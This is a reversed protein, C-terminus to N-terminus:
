MPQFQNKKNEEWEDWNVYGIDKKAISSHLWVHYIM